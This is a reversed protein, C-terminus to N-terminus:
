VFKLKMFIAKANIFTAEVNKEREVENWWERRIEKQCQIFFTNVRLLNTDIKM